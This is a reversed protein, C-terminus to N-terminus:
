QRTCTWCRGRLRRWWAHPEGQRQRRRRPHESLTGRARGVGRAEIRPSRVPATGPWAARHACTRRSAASWADCGRPGARPEEAARGAAGDAAAMGDRTAVAGVRTPIQSTVLSRLLELPRVSARYTTSSMDTAEDEPPGEGVALRARDGRVHQARRAVRVANSTVDEGDVGVAPRLHRGLWDGHEGSLEAEPWGLRPGADAVVVREGLGLRSVVLYRGSYGPRNALGTSARTQARHKTAQYSRSCRCEDIAISVGSSTNRPRACTTRSRRRRM